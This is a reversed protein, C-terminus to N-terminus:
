GLFHLIARGTATYGNAGRITVIKGVGNGNVVDGSLTPNLSSSTHVTSGARIISRWNQTWQSQAAATVFTYKNISSSDDPTAFFSFANPSQYSSRTRRVTVSLDTRSGLAYGIRGAVTGNQFANNALKNDTKFHAFDFFYDIRETVGGISAAQRVTNFNGGDITYNVEPQP